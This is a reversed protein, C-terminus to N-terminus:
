IMVKEPRPFGPEHDFWKWGNADTNGGYVPDSLMAEFLYSMMTYLWSDGWRTMSIDKLIKQREDSSLRRYSRQHKEEAEENLWATGNIIFERTELDIYEDHMVGYLYGIANIQNLSFAGDSPFLDNYLYAITQYPEAYIKVSKSAYEEASATALPLSLLLASQFLFNRRELM